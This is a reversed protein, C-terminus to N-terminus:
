RGVAPAACEAPEQGELALARCVAKFPTQLHTKVRAPPHQVSDAAAGITALIALLLEEDNEFPGARRVLLWEPTLSIEAQDGLRERLGELDVDAGAVPIPVVVASVPYDVRELGHPLLRGPGPAITVSHRSTEIASLFPTAYDFLVDTPEVHDHLWASPAVLAQHDGIEAGFPSAGRPDGLGTAQFQTGVLAIGALLLAQVALPLRATLQVFGAGVTAAWLPLVYIFHRASLEVSGAGRLVLYLVLPAAVAAWLALFAPQRRAILVVGFAAVVAFLVVLQRGGSVGALAVHLERLTARPSRLSSEEAVGVSFRESLRLYAVVLPVTLLGVLVFPLAARLPRGRWLVLAVAGEALLLFVGYTHTAAALVAAVAAVFAARTTRQELARCFLDMALAATFAFAAYMRGFTGFQGLMTSTAAVIAATAGALHGALRRGLDYCAVVTGLAFAVSTWRLADPSPDLLLALHAALFHFPPGGREFLVTGIMETLPRAAVIGTVAEDAHLPKLRIDPELRVLLYACAAM